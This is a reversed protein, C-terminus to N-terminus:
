HNTNYLSYLIYYCVKQVFEQHTLGLIPVVIINHSLVAVPISANAVSMM